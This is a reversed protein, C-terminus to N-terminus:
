QPGIFTRVASDFRLPRVFDVPHFIYVLRCVFLVCSRFYRVSIRRSSENRATRHVFVVVFVAKYFAIVILKFFLCQVSSAM